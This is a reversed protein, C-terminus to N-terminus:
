RRGLSSITKHCKDCVRLRIAEHDSPMCITVSIGGPKLMGTYQTNIKGCVYCCSEMPYLEFIDKKTDLGRKEKESRHLEMREIMMRRLEGRRVKKIKAQGM